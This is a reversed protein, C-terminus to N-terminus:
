RDFVLSTRFQSIGFPIAIGFPYKIKTAIKQHQNQIARIWNSLKPQSKSYSYATEFSKTAIGVYFKFKDINEYL